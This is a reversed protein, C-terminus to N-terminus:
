ARQVQPRDHRRTSRLALVSLGLAFLAVATPEPVAAVNKFDVFGEVVYTVAPGDSGFVGASFPIDYLQITQEFYVASGVAASYPHFVPQGTPTNSVIKTYGRMVGFSSGQKASITVSTPLALQGQTSHNGLDLGLDINAFLLGMSAGQTGFRFDTLAYIFEDGVVSVGSVTALTSPHWGPGPLWQTGDSLLYSSASGFVEITGVPEHPNQLGGFTFTNMRDITAANAASSAIAIAAAGLLSKILRM